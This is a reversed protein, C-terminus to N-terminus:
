ITPMIAYASIPLSIRHPRPQACLLIGCVGEATYILEVGDNHWYGNILTLGVANALDGCGAISGRRELFCYAGLAITVFFNIGVFRVFWYRIVRKGGKTISLAIALQSFM